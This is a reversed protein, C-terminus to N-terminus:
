TGDWARIGLGLQWRKEADRTKGAAVVESTYVDVVTEQGSGLVSSWTEGRM